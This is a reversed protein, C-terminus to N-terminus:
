APTFVGQRLIVDEVEQYRAPLSVFDQCGGSIAASRDGPMAYEAMGVLVMSECLPHQRLTRVIDLGATHRGARMRLNIFVVDPREAPLNNIAALWSDYFQLANEIGRAKLLVAMQEFMFQRNPDNEICAIHITLADPELTYM